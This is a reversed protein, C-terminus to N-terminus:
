RIPVHLARILSRPHATQDTGLRNALPMFVMKTRQADKSSSGTCAFISYKVMLIRVFPGSCVTCTLPRATHDPNAGNAM